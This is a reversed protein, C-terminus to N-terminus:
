NGAAQTEAEARRRLEASWSDLLAAPDVTQFGSAGAGHAALAEEMTTVAASDVKVWDGLKGVLFGIIETGEVPPGYLSHVRVRDVEARKVIRCAITRLDEGLWGAELDVILEAGARHCEQAMQMLESEVYRFQRSVMKGPNLVTEIAKAGRQLADRVAYLKASTTGAGHPYDVTTGITVGSREMWKAVLDLDAPRVTLRGPRYKKATDCAAAVQEEPYNPTLVAFDALSALDEYTALPARASENTETM